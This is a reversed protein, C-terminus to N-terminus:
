TGTREQEWNGTGQARMTRTRRGPSTCKVKKNKMSWGLVKSANRSEM